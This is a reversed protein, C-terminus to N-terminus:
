LLCSGLRGCVADLLTMFEVDVGSLDVSGSKIERLERCVNGLGVPPKVGRIEMELDMELYIRMWFELEIVYLPDNVGDTKIRVIRKCLQNMLVEPEWLYAIVNPRAIWPVKPIGMKEMEVQDVFKAKFLRSMVMFIFLKVAYSIVGIPLSSNGRFILEPHEVSYLAWDKLKFFQDVWKWLAEIPQAYRLNLTARLEQKLKSAAHQDELDALCDFAMYIFLIGEPGMGRISDSVGMKQGFQTGICGSHDFLGNIFFRISRIIKEGDLREIKPIDPLYCQDLGRGLANMLDIQLDTIALARDFLRCDILPKVASCAGENGKLSQGNKFNELISDNILVYQGLPAIDPLESGVYLSKYFTCFYLAYLGDLFLQHQQDEPISSDISVCCISDLEVNPLTVECGNRVDKFCRLSHLYSRCPGSLSPDLFQGCESASWFLLPGFRFHGLGHINLFPLCAYVNFVRKNNNIM